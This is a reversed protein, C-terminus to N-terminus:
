APTGEEWSPAQIAGSLGSVVKFVDDNAFDVKEEDADFDFMHLERDDPPFRCTGGWILVVLRFGDCLKFDHITRRDPTLRDGDPQKQASEFQCRCKSVDVLLKARSIVQVQNQDVLLVPPIEFLLLNCHKPNRSDDQQGATPSNLQCDPLILPYIPLNRVYTKSPVFPPLSPFHLKPIAQFSRLSHYCVLYGTTSVKCFHRHIPQLM